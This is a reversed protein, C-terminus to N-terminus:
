ALTTARTRWRAAHYHKPTGRARHSGAATDSATADIPQWNDAGAMGGAGGAGRSRARASATESLRAVTVMTRACKGRARIQELDRMRDLRRAVWVDADDM